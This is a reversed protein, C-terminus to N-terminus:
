AANRSNKQGSIGASARASAAAASGSAVLALRALSRPPTVIPPSSNPLSARAKSNLAHTPTKAANRLEGGWADMAQGSERGSNAM